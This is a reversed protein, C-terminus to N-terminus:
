ENVSKSYVMLKVVQYLNQNKKLLITKSGATEGAQKDRIDDGIFITKTLDFLHEHSARFLMGTKPKRCKCNEDWGHPCYYIGDIKAKNKRLEKKMNKHILELDKILMKGRAIGAQNSIVFIKYGAKNLLKIAEIAGPLFKFEKWKKIYNGRDPKENIVGDRDLLVVKKSTLFKGTIKVRQLDGISYYKHDTLVGSLRKKAILKSFIDEFKSNTKPLLKLVKKDIIMYGIEVGNLNKEVRSKDYKKVYGLEDILTNNKTSNDTNSFVTILIDSPHSNFIKKHTKLKLPWYNDCYMLLFFKKLLKGANKIRLGSQIEEGLENLFPTNSYRIKIGFKEGDKFYDRIKEGFYGTLIIVERIGNEKLLNILHELFPKGNVPVMPKPNKLTFPQLRTGAGGALIVAQTIKRM